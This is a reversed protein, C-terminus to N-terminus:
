IGLPADFGRKKDFIIQGPVHEFAGSSTDALNIVIFDRNEILDPHTRRLTAAKGRLGLADILLDIANVM